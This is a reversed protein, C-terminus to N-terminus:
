AHHTEELGVALDNGYGDDAELFAVNDGLDLGLGGISVVGNLHSVATHPVPFQGLRLHTM